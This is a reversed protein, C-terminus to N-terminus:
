RWTGSCTRCHNPARRPRRAASAGRAAAAKDAESPRETAFRHPMGPRSTGIAHNRVAGRIGATRRVKAIFGRDTTSVKAIRLEDNVDVVRGGARHIASEAADAGGTYVVVYEQPSSSGGPDAGASLPASFTVATAAALILVLLSRPRKM